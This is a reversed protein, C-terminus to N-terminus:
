LLFSFIFILFIHVELCDMFKAKNIKLAEALHEVGSDKIQNNQLNLHTLIQSLFHRHLYLHENILFM